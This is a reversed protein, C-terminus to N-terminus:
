KLALTKLKKQLESIKESNLGDIIKEIELAFQKTKKIAQEL